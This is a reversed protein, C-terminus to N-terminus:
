ALLGESQMWACTDELLRRVPTFEYNLENRARTSDCRIHRTIMAAGEPTLDPEKGTLASSFVQLRGALRLLWAPSARSPVPKGLLDGTLRIVDLFRTDPGGMLYNQGGRGRHWAAVHARAVERVDAFAGGGPPVGPLSGTNVLRIMRSWNHRDGPGLIHAPNCVVADVRGAEAADKVLQEAARKTRIYNIWGGKSSHPTEENLEGECFGWVIFSSTHIFREVNAAVAAELVNRTGEVNIRTQMDNRRSWINTSAAVHFVGATGPPIAAKVSAPDTIDGERWDIDLQGSAARSATPRALATVTWGDRCLERILHAGVFGTGGTVFARRSM